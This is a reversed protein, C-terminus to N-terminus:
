ARGAEPEAKALAVAAFIGLLALISILEFPLLYVSFLLRGLNEVKGDPNQIVTLGAQSFLTVVLGTFILGTLATLILHVKGFRRAMPLTVAGLGQLMIVFLFLVLVAGAYVIIHVIAVFYAHLLTYLIGLCFMTLLLALLARTPRRVFLISLAGAVATIACPWFFIAEM